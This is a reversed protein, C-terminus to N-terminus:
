EVAERFNITFNFYDKAEPEVPPLDINKGFKGSTAPATSDFIIVYFKSVGCEKQMALYETKDAEYMGTFPYVLIDVIPFEQGYIDRSDSEEIETIDEVGENSGSMAVGRSLTWAPALFLRGVQIYANTNTPDQVSLRWYRKTRTASFLGYINTAAWTVTETVVNTTFASDDAGILEITAASSINHNGIFFGDLAVASLLDIDAYAKPYHIRRSDSTYTLAGTDNAADSFGCVDSIDTAKNTGTNWLIQFTGSPSTFTFKATAEDYTATYNVTGAARLQTQIEAALTAGNYTGTTLTATKEAGGENFNIYKTTASIVFTDNGSGTGYRTCWAQTLVDVQSDEVPFQPHQSSKALITGRSWYDKYLIKVAM